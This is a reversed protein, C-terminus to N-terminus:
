LLCLLFRFLCHLFLAVVKGITLESVIDLVAYGNGPEGGGCGGLLVVREGVVRVAVHRAVAAEAVCPVGLVTEDARLLEAGRRVAMGVGDGVGIVMPPAHDCLADGFVVAVVGEDLGGGVEPVAPVDDAFGGGVAVAGGGDRVVNPSEVQIARQLAGAANSAEQRDDAVIANEQGRIICIAVYRLVDRCVAGDDRMVIIRWEALREDGGARERSGEGVLEASLWITGYRSEAFVLHPLIPRLYSPPNSTALFNRLHSIDHLITGM